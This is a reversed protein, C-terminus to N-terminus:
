AIGALDDERGTAVALRAADAHEDEVVLAALASAECLAEVVTELPEAHVPPLLTGPKRV